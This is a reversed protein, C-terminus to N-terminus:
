SNSSRIGSLSKKLSALTSDQLERCDQITGRKNEKINSHQGANNFLDSLKTAESIAAQLSQLLANIINPNINISISLKSSNFTSLNAHLKTTSDNSSNLAWTHSFFITLLLLFLKPSSTAM